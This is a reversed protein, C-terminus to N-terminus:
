RAATVAVPKHHGCGAYEDYRLLMAVLMAPLMAVHELWMLTSFDTEIGTALLGVMAFTPLFMSAAMEACPRWAHGRRRMLWVMPITMIVAMGLLAVAPADTQLDSSSSGLLRLVGEAPLGLVVMGVLMAAVMELYHRTFRFISTQM